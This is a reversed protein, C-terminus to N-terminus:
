TMLNATHSVLQGFTQVYRWGTREVEEIAALGAGVEVVSVGSQIEVAIQIDSVLKHEFTLCLLLVRASDIPPYLMGAIGVCDAAHLHRPTAAHTHCPHWVRRHNCRRRGIRIDAGVSASTQTSRHPHRRRGIRVMCPPSRARVLPLASRLVDKVVSNTKGYRLLWCHIIGFFRHSMM